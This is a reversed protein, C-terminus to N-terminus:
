RTPDEESARLAEMPDRSNVLYDQAATTIPVRWDAQINAPPIWGYAAGEMTKVIYEPLDVAEATSRRVPAQGAETAWLTDAEPSVLFALWKKAAEVNPSKSWAAATWTGLYNVSDQGSQAPWLAFGVQGEDMQGSITGTDTSGSTAMVCNGAMFQEQADDSTWTLADRPVIGDDLLSKSYELAAVGDDTALKLSGDENYFTGQSTLQYAHATTMDGAGSFGQCLGWLGSDPDSLDKAVQTFDDWTAIDDGTLGNEAFIDARYLVGYTQRFLAIGWQGEDTQMGRTLADDLDAKDEDSFQDSIPAFVGQLVAPGSEYLPMMVVDPADGAADAALFSTTLLDWQTTLVEVTINPNEEEFMDILKGIVVNRQDTTSTPDLFTSMTITVPEGGDDPPATGDGSDGTDGDAGCAVLGLATVAALAVIAPGRRVRMRRAEMLGMRRTAVRM